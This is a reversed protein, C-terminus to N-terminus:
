AVKVGDRPRGLEGTLFEPVLLKGAAVAAEYDELSPIKVQAKKAYARHVAKSNHGLAEQAYREPYGACKAREAWAYRYSHLSIGQIGLGVCRQHFETARDNSRVTRLYPFLPGLAPLRRLLAATKEGFHILPPRLGADMRGKLKGRCYCLTRDAWDIDSADLEAIDKQSGGLHWCLEYFDHREVNGERALIREHEARTIGRREAYHIPPWLKKALIPWPLWGIGVCYNHLKRLFVNTSVTGRQVAQLVREPPTETIIEHRLVDLAKDKAATRWRRQDASGEAKGNIIHVLAQDWTRTTLALDAGAMYVRALQRNLSPQRAAENRAHLLSAAVGKNATALSERRGTQTDIAYYIGGRAAYRVMRFRPKM